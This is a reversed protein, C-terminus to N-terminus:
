FFSIQEPLENSTKMKIFTQFDSSINYKRKITNIMSYLQNKYEGMSGTKSYMNILLRHYQPYNNRIFDFFVSRTAGRLYMLSTLAYTVNCDAAKSLLESLNEYSDTIFPIIPMIHIGTSAETTSFEKLVNFRNSVPSAGPELKRATEDDSATITQAINVYTLRSLEDILDFDRLILDSKSSIICPNKYKILLRLIDPMLKYTKECPQYSDTVGGINIIEGKWSKSSLQKELVEAINKKVYINESFCDDDLYRHTYIAYCYRCSHECGRYINLDWNYPLNNRLHNCATECLIEKYM